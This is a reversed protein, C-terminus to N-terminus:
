HGAADVVSDFVDGHPGVGGNELTGAAELDGTRAAISRLYEKALLVQRRANALADEHGGGQSDDESSGTRRRPLPAGNLTGNGGGQSDSAASSDDNLFDNDDSEEDNDYSSVATSTGLGQQHHDHHHHYYMGAPRNPQLEASSKYTLNGSSLREAGVFAALSGSNATQVMPPPLSWSRQTAAAATPRLANTAFQSTPYQYIGGRIGGTGAGILSSTASSHNDTSVGDLFSLKMAALQQRLRANEMGLEDVVLKSTDTPSPLSSEISPTITGALAAGPETPSLPSSVLTAAHTNNSPLSAREERKKRLDEEVAKLEAEKRLLEEERQRLAADISANSPLLVNDDNNSSPQQQQQQQQQDNGDESSAASSSPTQNDVATQLQEQVAVMEAQLAEMETWHQEEAVKLQRQAESLSYAAESRERQLQQKLVECHQELMAVRTKEDELIRTIEETKEELKEFRRRWREADEKAAITEQRANDQGAVAAELLRAAGEKAGKERELDGRALASEEQARRITEDLVTCRSSLEAVEKRLREATHEADNAATEARTRAAKAEAAEVTAMHLQKRLNEAAAQAEQTTAAKAVRMGELEAELSLIRETRLTDAKQTEEALAQYQAELARLAAMAGDLQATTRKLTLENEAVRSDARQADCRLAENEERLRQTSAVLEAEAAARSALRAEFESAVTAAEERLLELQENSELRATHLAEDRATREDMIRKDNLESMQRHRAELSALRTDRDRLASERESLARRADAITQM